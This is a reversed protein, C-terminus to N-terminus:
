ASRVGNLQLAERRPTLGTLRRTQLGKGAAVKSKLTPSDAVFDCNLLFYNIMFNLPVVARRRTAPMVAPQRSPPMAAAVMAAGVAAAAGSQEAAPTDFV